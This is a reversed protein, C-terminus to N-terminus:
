KKNQRRLERYKESGIEMKILEKAKKISWRYYYIGYTYLIMFSIIIGILNIHNM